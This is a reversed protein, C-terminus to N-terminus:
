VKEEDSLQLTKGYSANEALDLMQLQIRIFSVPQIM